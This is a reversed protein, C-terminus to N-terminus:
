QLGIRRVVANGSHSLLLSGHSHVGLATHKDEKHKYHKAHVHVTQWISFAAGGGVNLSVATESMVIACPHPYGPGNSRFFLESMSSTLTSGEVEQM